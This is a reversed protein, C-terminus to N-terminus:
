YREVQRSARGEYIGQTGSPIRAVSNQGDVGTQTTCSDLSQEISKAGSPDHRLPAIDGARSADRRFRTVGEYNGGTTRGAPGLADDVGM